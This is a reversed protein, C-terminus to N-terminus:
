GRAPSVGGAAQKMEQELQKMESEIQELQNVLDSSAPQKAKLRANVQGFVRWFEERKAEWEELAEYFRQQEM